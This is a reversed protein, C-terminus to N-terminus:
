YQFVLRLVVTCSEEPLHEFEQSEAISLFQTIAM